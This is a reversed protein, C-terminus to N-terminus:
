RHDVAPVADPHLAVASARPQALDNMAVVAVHEGVRGSRKQISGRRGSVQCLHGVGERGRVLALGDLGERCHHELDSILQQGDVGLRHHLDRRRPGSVAHPVAIAADKRTDDVDVALQLQNSCISELPLARPLARM